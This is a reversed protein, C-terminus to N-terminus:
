TKFVAEKELEKFLSRPYIKNKKVREFETETKKIKDDFASDNESHEANLNNSVKNGDDEETPETFEHIGDKFQDIVSAKNHYRSGWTSSWLTYYQYLTNNRQEEPLAAHLFELPSGFQERGITLLKYKRLFAVSATTSFFKYMEMVSEFPHHSRLVYRLCSCSRSLGELGHFYEKPYKKTEKALLRKYPRIELDERTMNQTWPYICWAIYFLDENPTLYSPFIIFKHLHKLKLNQLIEMTLHERLQFPSWGLRTEVAYRILELVTTHSAASNEFYFLSIYPRSGMMSDDYDAIIEKSLKYYSSRTKKAM